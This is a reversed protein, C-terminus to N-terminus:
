VLKLAKKFGVGKLSDLYDCGSLICTMLLCDQQFDADGQFLLTEPLRELDIEIGKGNLDM